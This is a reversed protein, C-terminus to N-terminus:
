KKKLKEWLEIDGPVVNFLPNTLPLDKRNSMRKIEQYKVPDRKKLKKKLHELEYLIQGHTVPIQKSTRKVGIKELNFNYGRENAELYVHNLYTDLFILPQEEKKFRILQPHNLYGKTKGDLVARALLGERWLAVLGKSDLYKPHLSWLRM